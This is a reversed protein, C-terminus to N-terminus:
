QGESPGPTFPGLGKTAYVITGIMLADLAIGAVVDLVPHGERTPDASDKAAALVGGLTCGSTLCAVLALPLIIRKMM